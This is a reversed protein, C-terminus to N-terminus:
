WVEVAPSYCHHWCHPGADGSLLRVSESCGWSWCYCFPRCLRGSSGWHASYWHSGLCVLLRSTTLLWWWGGEVEVMDAQCCGLLSLSFVKGPEQWMSVESEIGLCQYFPNFHTSSLIFPYLIWFWNGFCLKAWIPMSLIIVIWLIFAQQLCMVSSQMILYLLQDENM